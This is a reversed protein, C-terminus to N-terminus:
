EVSIGRKAPNDIVNGYRNFRSGHCSCDWTKEVSNWKLACGMHPCRKGFRFFGGVSHAMNLFVQGRLMSRQPSFLASLESERQLIFETLVAAAVMSGTMGWKNFGAAVYLNSASVRHIGIYPMQDLTMCDQAAWAYREELDPYARRALSRLEGYGGGKKGTRHDGGGLLLMGEYNRFSHGNQREDVYMGKLDPGDSLALVYSRHQYLKMFYLGPINVLPFHTALVIHQAEIRAKDTISMHGKVDKVFTNEYIELGDTLGVLFQMPNFQAQSLMGLAGVTQFPVPVDEKFQMPIGLKQYAEAEMELKARSDTSYVYATKEELGCPVRKALNSYAKIAATNAEYYLKAREIGFRKILNAYVIGHQATIKGTTNKTVGSGIQKAEVLMCSVGAEKLKYATLIGALGGGIILVDTKKDKELRPFVPRKGEISDTWVSSM